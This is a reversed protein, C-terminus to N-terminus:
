ANGFVCKVKDLATIGGTANVWVLFLVNEIDYGCRFMLGVFCRRLSVLVRGHFCSFVFM